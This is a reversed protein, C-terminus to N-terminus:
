NPLDVCIFCVYYIVIKHLFNVTWILSLRVQSKGDQFLKSWGPMKKKMLNRKHTQANVNRLLLVFLSLSITEKSSCTRAHERNCAIFWRDLLARSVADSAAKSFKRETSDFKWDWRERCQVKRKSSHCNYASIGTRNEGQTTNQQTLQQNRSQIVASDFSPLLQRASSIRRLFRAKIAIRAAMGSDIKSVPRLSLLKRSKHGPNRYDWKTIWM